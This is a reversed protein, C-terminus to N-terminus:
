MASYTNQIAKGSFARFIPKSKNETDNQKIQREEQLTRKRTKFHGM